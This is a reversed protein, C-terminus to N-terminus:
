FLGEHICPAVLVSLWAIFVAGVFYFVLEVQKDKRMHNKSKSIDAIAAKDMISEIYDYDKNEKIQKDRLNRLATIIIRREFDTVRILVTPEKNKFLGM